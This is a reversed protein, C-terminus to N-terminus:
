GTGEFIFVIGEDTLVRRAEQGAWQPPIKKAQTVAHTLMLVGRLARRTFTGRSIRRVRDGSPFPAVGCGGATKTNLIIGNQDPIVFLSGSRAM